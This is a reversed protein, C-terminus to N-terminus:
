AAQQKRRRAIGGVLGLGALLLAYTEPEPVSTVTTINVNDISTNGLVANGVFDFHSVGSTSAFSFHQYTGPLSYAGYNATFTQSGILTNLSSYVNITGNIWSAVDFNLSQISAGFSPNFQIQNAGIWLGDPNNGRGAGVGYVNSLDSNTGLWGSEWGPFPANFDETYTAAQAASAAFAIAITIALTLPRTKM